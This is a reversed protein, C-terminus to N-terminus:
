NIKKEEMMKKVEEMTAIKLGYRQELDKRVKLIRENDTLFCDEKANMVANLYDIFSDAGLDGYFRDKYKSNYEEETLLKEEFAQQLINNKQEHVAQKIREVMRERIPLPLSLIQCFDDKDITSFQQHHKM